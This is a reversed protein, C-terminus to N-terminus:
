LLQVFIYKVWEGEGLSVPILETERVPWSEETEPLNCNALFTLCFLLQVQGNQCELFALFFTLNHDIEGWNKM